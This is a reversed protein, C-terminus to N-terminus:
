DCNHFFPKNMTDGLLGNLIKRSSTHLLRDLVILCQCPPVSGKQTLVCSSIFNKGVHPRVFHPALLDSAICGQVLMVTAPQDLGEIYTRVYIPIYVRNQGAGTLIVSAEIKGPRGICYAVKILNLFIVKPIANTLNPDRTLKSEHNFKSLSTMFRCYREMGSCCNQPLSPHM